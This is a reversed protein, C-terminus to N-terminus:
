KEVLDDLLPVIHKNILSIVEVGIKDLIQRKDKISINADALKGFQEKIPKIKIQVNKKNKLNEHKLLNFCGECLVNILTKPCEKLYEKKDKKSLGKLATFYCNRKKLHKQKM